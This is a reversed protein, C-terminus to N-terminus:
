IPVLIIKCQGIQSHIQVSIGIDSPTGMNRTSQPRPPTRVDSLSILDGMVLVSTIRPHPHGYKPPGWIRVVGTGTSIHISKVYVMTERFYAWKLFVGVEREHWTKRACPCKIELNLGSQRSLM